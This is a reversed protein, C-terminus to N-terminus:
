RTKSQVAHDLHLARTRNKEFVKKNGERTLRLISEEAVKSNADDARRTFFVDTGVIVPASTLIQTGEDGCAVCKGESDDLFYGDECM